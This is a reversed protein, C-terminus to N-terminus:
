LAGAIDRVPEERQTMPRASSAIVAVVSNPRGAPAQGPDGPVPQTTTTDAM